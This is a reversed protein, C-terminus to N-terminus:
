RKEFKFQYNIIFIGITLLILTIVMNLPQVFTSETLMLMSLVTGFIPTTSSFIAVKSVDNHKLLVGWLGYAVASLLALYLLVLLGWIDNIAIRGKFIIGIICLVIGGIVFQYGSIAVPDEKKSFRKMLVSSFAYAVSSFLVFGDGLFNMSLELGNLNILVIGFFGLLCGIVKKPTLKEQRFILSSILITFFANGGTIITGKVGSTNSLGIYFFTYQIATQFLAVTSVMGLSEKKPYILKRRGISYFLITFIGALIFRIGAFLITSPVDKEPLLLQYGLKIFPTASGWLACCLLAGLTLVLPNKFFNKEKTM